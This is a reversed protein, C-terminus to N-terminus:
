CHQHMSRHQAWASSIGSSLMTGSPHRQHLEEVRPSQVRLRPSRRHQGQPGTSNGSENQWGKGGRGEGYNWTDAWSRQQDSDRGRTSGIEGLVRCATRNPRRNGLIASGCHHRHLLHCPSSGSTGSCVPWRTRDWLLGLGRHAEGASQPTIRTLVSGREGGHGGWTSTFIYVTSLRVTSLSNCTLTTPVSCGLTM